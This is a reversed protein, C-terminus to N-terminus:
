KIVMKWKMWIQFLMTLLKIFLLHHFKAANTSGMSVFYSTKVAVARLLVRELRWSHWTNFRRKVVQCLQCDSLKIPAWVQYYSWFKTGRLRIANNDLHVTTLAFSEDTLVARVKFGLYWLRSNFPFWRNWFM